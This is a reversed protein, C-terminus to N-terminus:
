AADPLRLAGDEVLASALGAALEDPDTGIELVVQAARDAPLGFDRAAKLVAMLQLPTTV